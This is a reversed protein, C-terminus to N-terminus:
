GKKGLGVRTILIVQEIVEKADDLGILKFLRPLLNKRIETEINQPNLSNEAIANRVITDIELAESILQDMGVVDLSEFYEEGKALKFLGFYAAARRNESLESPIQEVRRDKVKEELEKFLLYQKIPHDFLAEAESIAEKLLESFVKQAYPDEGLAQEITKTVRSRIVDAENRAHEADWGEPDTNGIDTLSIVGEPDLVEEGVVHKDVLNRIQEEYISFDVTEQADQKAIKRLNTFFKLNSKYQEIREESVGGDEFFSRSSLAIKLCMGFESLSAYFDERIKQRVDYPVGDDDNQFHPVLIQRYQELDQRNQVAAFHAWLADHLSPLRKYETDVQNYLGELDEIDYGGQTREALDQYDRIATDLERLIGRYDILLGYKKAEHLRNVRAIAQILNHKELKKDIYLVGNRPEDFGTLLKSVVILIDPRGDTGFDELVQREYEEPDNGVNNKWWEQIEPLKANDVDSHDERTDPPSMIIASTVLGTKDLAEKYRIASIKSDTALQGKLGGGLSKINESFHVAIDWAILDIRNASGYVPGKTGYKKKLDNKQSDTLGLTIKEFWNDIATENVDLVPKREEYLLPTVTGDEVARQMTYAHVIPGFKSTTKDKTLLPTGTFAVYAANPLAQKMREHNEGGHSRHGEDVLVILDSSTNRCEPFKSAGYFKDIISFIIREKGQGIRKALDRGSQAKAKEGDKKTGIDSGFAGSSMFTKSLQRELDIRDTVVVIRCRKLQEHLLLAKTLFVMTFSKGSGTTHWVVGGERGGDVRKQTIRDLLAKIGFAQQYRAAIKGVKKDFLIFYRIFELLRDHRLLSVILKDQETPLNHATWLEEFYQRKWFPKDAFLADASQRDPVYSKIKSFESEEIEEERWNSWFKSPTKTTAYKGDIGSVSMLLQSYAFLQPIEDTRQNRISQSIGEVVMSKNPNGSDPRKAEIVVLPLGNVYCVVDPRRTHTGGASLVELEETVIFSNNGLNGWDILQITPSYRNGDVFETVTIGLTIQDYLRENATELGENLAPSTVERVIQDIANTSLPYLRGKYEFTREKLQEVLVGRMVVGTNGSRAALCDAQSMFKWGMAMLIHLAPIHSAYAESTEPTKTM